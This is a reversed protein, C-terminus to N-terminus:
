RKKIFLTYDSIWKEEEGPKISIFIFNEPCLTTTTAWFALRHIPKDVKFQIGAGTKKNRVIIDHDKTQTGYGELLLWISEEKLERTFFLEHDKIKILDKLDDETRVAFPFTTIFEPGTIRGDIVFFNHNFQDTEIVKSGTNKLIHTITFGPDTKKLDIRKIYIYGWGTESKLEHRFEIWDTGKEVTWEGYDTIKYTHDWRYEEEEPKELVGVGIRIFKEGPKAETYGLGPNISAEVPGCLDEHFYPDHTSKWEGFYQHGKYKLSSIIGCWEFRTARYYGIQPDPLYLNMSVFDNSIEAHPYDNMNVQASISILFFPHLIFSLILFKNKM